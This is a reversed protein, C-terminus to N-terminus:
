EIHSYAYEYYYVYEFIKIVEHPTEVTKPLLNFTITIQRAVNKVM